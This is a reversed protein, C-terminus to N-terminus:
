RRQKGRAVNNARTAANAPPQQQLIALLEQEKGLHCVKFKRGSGCPCPDNRGPMQATNRVTRSQPKESESSDSVQAQQAAVLRKLQEAEIQRLTQEYQFSVHIIQYVLDRAINHKLEEFMTYANRQYETLPDRQAITQLNIEQRLDEMGTLYEVWHRDIIGLLLRREIYRMADAGLAQERVDYVHLFQALLEERIELRSLEILEEEIGEPLKPNITRLPRMLPALDWDAPDDSLHENLLADIESSVMALVRERLSEGDLIRRRDAYIVTRQKNMVDDFEVTHKRIDFNYGEVRTQAGEISRNILGAEIPVDDDVGLREMLGKVRDMPGFRRMLDDELSLYFRSSGPDGQRGARGRLQNDIRRAEHRETGIVHLGGLAVVEAREAETRLHAETLASQVQEPTAQDIDIGQEALVVDVLGDPNGGMLIDTGRGAMNTAITVRGVRGAQAVVAAEREHQKANLVQHEIKYSRLLASLRESTEVSTTGVLVPRGEAHKEQIDRVVAEFKAAETRYILDSMDQRVMPRHTPIITVELNYIKAFEERETDATGTMGGLKKYMRFFNQYTITALTVNEQRMRVGEKAEVAQHLGDSWRRGSMKRGTFEDVIVVEGDGEVLYDRDRQYIFQARLANELYHTLQYYQPDYLNEDSPIRLLREVKLIGQETLQVSKTRLDIMFDGQPDEINDKKVQDPTYPSATLNRVLTAFRRYEQSSEQAPGSIILPTRAEDILINDIEDVIAYNLPRQVLQKEEFVMNDRLYDFGVESNTAYTIDAHYAERRSVPRWHILRRDDSAAKPDIYAPDYIASLDHAIVAVSMGLAYYIPAMWGAGVRVLYDNVTILHVGKSTLANLYLPLTAVLTKGEGTKMEAIRGSHLTIGGILQVDFHRQNNIRKSTERVLAFAEPLVDDLTEGNALRERFRPTYAALEDMSCAQMVSELGNIREVIPAIRRLEKETSDGFISKLFKFVRV